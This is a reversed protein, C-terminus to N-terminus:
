ISLGIEGAGAARWTDFSSKAEEKNKFTEIHAIIRVAGARAFLEAVQIPEQVMCHVEYKLNNALPLTQNQLEEWQGSHYPWSMDPVFVGDGIDLHVHPSFDAIVKSRSSLEDFAPPCTNTPIIEIM